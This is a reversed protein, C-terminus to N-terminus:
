LWGLPFHIDPVVRSAMNEVKAQLVGRVTGVMLEKQKAVVEQDVLQVSNKAQHLSLGLNLRFLDTFTKLPCLSTLVSFASPPLGTSVDVGYKPTASSFITVKEM